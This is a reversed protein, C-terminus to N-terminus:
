SIKALGPGINTFYKAFRDAIQVPDSIESSDTKFTSSLRDNCKKWNLIENLVPLVLWDDDPFVCSVESVKFSSYSM